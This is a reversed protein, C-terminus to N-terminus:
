RGARPGLWDPAASSRGGKEFAKEAAVRESDELERHRRDRLSEMLRRRARAEGYLQSFDTLKERRAELQARSEDEVRRLVDVFARQRLVSGGGVGELCLEGALEDAQAEARREALANVRAEQVEVAARLRSVKELAKREALERERILVKLSRLRRKNTSGKM